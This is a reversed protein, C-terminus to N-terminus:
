LGNVKAFDDQTCSLTQNVSVICDTDPQIVQGKEVTHPINSESVLLVRNCTDCQIPVICSMIARTVNFLYLVVCSQM